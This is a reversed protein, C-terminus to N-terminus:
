KQRPLKGNQTEPAARTAVLVLEARSKRTAHECARAETPCASALLQSRNYLLIILTTALRCKCTPVSNCHPSRSAM